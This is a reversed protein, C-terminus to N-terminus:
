MASSVPKEGAPKDPDISYKEVDLAVSQNVGRTIKSLGGYVVRM